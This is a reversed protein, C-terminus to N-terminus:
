RDVEPLVIDISGLIAITDAVMTGRLVDPMCALNSFSPTRLKIRFPVDSGDSVIYIGFQGRASEVAFYHEGVDPKFRKLAKEPMIPGDPIKAIAQEIIRMSQEMEAVRVYYRALNDAGSATPIDFEFRDYIGYPEARRVDYPVGAARLTPGTVGYEIATERDIVGVGECRSRFIVNDTVLAHYEAMRGRLRALFATTEDLFKKDVDETVGGFRGYCYTLRSGTVRDLISLIQERDDFSYLFPTIGGLDLLFTGFWLLHSSVRNLECVIVRIHEAREPVEIALMKEVAQCYAINYIMGSLYDVRSTNPLFMMYNRNEAMKEHARHAYGIIPECKVIEEGRLELLLRLVGHMSPHQPGMNLYYTEGDPDAPPTAWPDASTGAALAAGPKHLDSTM